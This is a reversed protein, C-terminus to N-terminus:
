RDVSFVDFRRIADQMMTAKRSVVFGVGSGYGNSARGFARNFRRFFWGLLGDLIRTLRDKPAHHDKLLLASLAPSLTLSNIATNLNAATLVAGATFSGTM